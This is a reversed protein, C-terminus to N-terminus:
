TRFTMMYLWFYRSDSESSLVHEAHVIFVISVQITSSVDARCANFPYLDIWPRCEADNGFPEEVEKPYRKM